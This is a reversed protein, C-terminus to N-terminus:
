RPAAAFTWLKEVESMPSDPCGTFSAARVIGEVCRGAEDNPVGNVHAAVEL